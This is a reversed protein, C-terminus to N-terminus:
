QLRPAVPNIATPVHRGCWALLLHAGEANLTVPGKRQCVIDSPAGTWDIMLYRTTQAMRRTASTTGEAPFSGWCALSM